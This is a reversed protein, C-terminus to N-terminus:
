FVLIPRVAFQANKRYDAIYGPTFMSSDFCFYYAWTSKGYNDVKETSTWYSADSRYLLQYSDEPLKKLSNEVCAAGSGDEDFYVRDYIYKMQGASPLFWGSSSEPAACVNEYAVTAYYAAPYNSDNLGGENKATNKISLTNTYGLFDTTLTSCGAGADDNFPSWWAGDTADKLSVVYGHFEELPTTGDKRTYFTAVDRNDTAVGVRFVIGVPTKSSDYNTSWTGDSYYFDGIKPNATPALDEHFYIGEVDDNHYTFKEGSKLTVTFSQAAAGFGATLFSLVLWLATLNRKM